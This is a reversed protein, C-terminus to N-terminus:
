PRELVEVTDDVRALGPETVRWYVGRRNQHRTEPAQVFRLADNGFRQHFKRCGNHPEATMVVRAEGVRLETGVPLNEASLDLEVFLNDGFLTLEQENAILEAVERQMVALQADPKQPQRRNWEDGPIGEVVSLWVEEPTERVGGPLRRVLLALRGSDPAPRALAELGAALSAATRHRAPDGTPGYAFAQQRLPSTDFFVENRVIHGGQLEVTCVGDLELKQGAFPITAHWHNLFGRELPVARTQTWVWDPNRALLRRFYSLLAERGHVGAPIAPDAYFCDDSYFGALLEPQNGSWAPLWREAFSRAEDSDLGEFSM